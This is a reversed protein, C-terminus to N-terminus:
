RLTEWGREEALADLDAQAHDPWNRWKLDPVVRRRGWRTWYMAVYHPFLSYGDTIAQVAVPRGKDDIYTTM